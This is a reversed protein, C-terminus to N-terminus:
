QLVRASYTHQADHSKNDHATIHHAKRNQLLPSSSSSLAITVLWHLLLFIDITFITKVIALGTKFKVFSKKTKALIRKIKSLTTKMKGNRM